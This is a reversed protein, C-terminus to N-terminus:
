VGAIVVKDGKRLQDTKSSWIKITLKDKDLILDTAHLKSLEDFRLFGAFALLCVTLLHVNSLSGNKQADKVMAALMETNFLTKKIISRAM